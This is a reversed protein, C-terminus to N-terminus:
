EEGAAFHVGTLQECLALFEDQLAMSGAEPHIRAERMHYFYRGSVQARADANVALWAQTECGQELDDPASPGGMKTPVWGPDVANAHVDPWKRAVAKMLLVVYFKSDSYSVGGGGSALSRLWSRGSLHMGSGLYVLRRPKEILCTLIYPALVNVTFIEQGSGEYIGANHIVADFRGLANVQAALQKVEDIRALDAILVGEASPVSQLADQARQPNRAHLVLRHGQQAMRQAAMRGLGDSSGTVFIRAM